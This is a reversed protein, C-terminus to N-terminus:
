ARAQTPTAVSTHALPWRFIIAAIMLTNCLVDRRLLPAASFLSFIIENKERKLFAFRRNNLHCKPKLIIYLTYYVHMCVFM